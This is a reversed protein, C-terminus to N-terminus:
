PAEGRSYYVHQQGASSSGAEVGGTPPWEEAGIRPFVAGIREIDISTTVLTFLCAQDTTPLGLAQARASDILEGAEAITFPEVDAGTEDVLAGQRGAGFGAHLGTGSCRGPGQDEIAFEDLLALYVTTPLGTTPPPQGVPQSSPRLVVVTGLVVAIMAAAAVVLVARSRRRRGYLRDIGEQTDVQARVREVLAIGESRFDDPIM